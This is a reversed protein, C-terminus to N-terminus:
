EANTPGSILAMHIHHGFNLVYMIQWRSDLAQFINLQNGKSPVNVFLLHFLIYHM